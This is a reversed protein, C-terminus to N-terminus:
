TESTATWGSSPSRSRVPSRMSTAPPGRHATTSASWCRRAMTAPPQPPPTPTPTLARAASQCGGSSCSPPGGDALEGCCCRGVGAASCPRFQVGSVRAAQSDAGQSCDYRSQDARLGAGMQSRLRGGWGGVGRARHGRRRQQQRGPGCGAAQRHSQPATISRLPPSRTRARRNPNLTPLADAARM